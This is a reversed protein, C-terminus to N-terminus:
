RQTYYGSMLALIVDAHAAERAKELHYRHGSHFPNYESIVACVNM